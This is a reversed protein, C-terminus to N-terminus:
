RALGARPLPLTQNRVAALLMHGLHNVQMHMENEQLTRAFPAGDIGACLVIGDLPKETRRLEDAFVRVQVLDALDLPSEPCVVSAGSHTRRVGDALNRARAPDRCGLVVKCPLCETAPLCATLPPCETTGEYGKGALEEAVAKGIGSTAGTVLIAGAADAAGSRRPFLASFALLSASDQLLARRSRADRDGCEAAIIAPKNAAGPRHAAAHRRAACPLARHVAVFASAGHLALAVLLLRTRRM